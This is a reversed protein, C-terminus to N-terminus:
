EFRKVVTNSKIYIYIRKIEEDPNWIRMKMQDFITKITIIVLSMKCITFLRM